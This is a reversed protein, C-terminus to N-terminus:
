YLFYVFSSTQELKLNSDTVFSCISFIMSPKFDFRLKPYSPSNEINNFCILRSIEGQRVIKNFRHMVVTMNGSFIFIAFM